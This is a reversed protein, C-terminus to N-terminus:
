VEETTGRLRRWLRRVRVQITRFLAILLIVFVINFWPILTVDPGEVARLKVANPFASLFNSRWGYHTMAYWSPEEKTSKADAAETQLDATDFKFYPPWGWGTDENRYVMTRGNAKVTQIFLVDRNEATGGGADGSAWFISNIGFDQREEYTDVIRVIDRQPLTYHLITLVIVALLVRIGWKLYWM